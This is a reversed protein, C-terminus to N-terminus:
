NSRARRNIAAAVANNSIAPPNKMKSKEVTSDGASAADPMQPSAASSETKGEGSAGHFPAGRRTMTTV